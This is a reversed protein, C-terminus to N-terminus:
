RLSRQNFIASPSAPDVVRHGRAAALVELLSSHRRTALHDQAVTLLSDDAGYANKVALRITLLNREALRDPTANAILRTLTRPDPAALFLKRPSIPMSIFAEPETWTITTWVPRDSTVLLPAAAPVDLVRWHMNNLLQGVRPHNMLTRAIKLAWADTEGQDQGALYEGVTAPMGPARRAAYIEAIEPLVKSWDEKVSSKLQAIDEPARLMQTLVFRSWASRPGRTWQADPLGTELLALADAAGADLPSMFQTEMAQAEGPPRGSMEYLGPEFGTGKPVIRKAKVIGTPMRQLRTVRGDTEDAWRSLYFVPLFHHHIPDEM